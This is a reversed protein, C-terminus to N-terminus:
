DELIRRFYEITRVLGDDLPIAPKWSLKEAALTIDPQRQRPDDSPLPKFVIKSNSGAFRIVKEALELISFEVPNGLNVPGIFDDPSEMLRVLGEILDHVYCFSRTQTGEGYITIDEHKLAQIIFNSVV